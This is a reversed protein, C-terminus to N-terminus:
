QRTRAPLPAPRLPYYSPIGVNSPLYALTQGGRSCFVAKGDRTQAIGTVGDQGVRLAGLGPFDFAELAEMGGEPTITGIGHIKNGLLTVYNGIVRFGGASDSPGTIEFDQVTIYNVNSDMWFVDKSAGFSTPALKAGWKHAAKFTIPATATGSRSLRVYEPYTGDNVIVTDGPNVRSAAYNVSAWPSCAAGSNSNSGGPAVYYVNSATSTGSIAVSASASTANDYASVAKVTASSVSPCGPATYLGTSSITGYTSNGGQVGNVWWTVATNTTGTVSATFQKTGGGSVSASTPSISIGIVGATAVVSVSASASKTTDANSKATVTATGGSPVTAPATYLGSTSVTGNTSNGGQVGNVLWAVGTNTTGTV